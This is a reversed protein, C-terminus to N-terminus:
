FILDVGLMVSKLSPYKCGNSTSLEPDWLKFKSFTLLNNGSIYIRCAKVKNKTISKPINYGFEVQKLRLFSMDKKWWTSNANNNYNTAYSLRPWFVDQSPSEETWRDTYNTFINGLIGQGSGPIFYDSEDGIFRYTDGIGQFFISFDFGHFSINGGFGYVMRPDNTGGIYGKDKSNIVGDDNWDLFKIDGPRVEALENQPLDSLLNGDTDFDEATYLGLAKYGYMENISHGTIDQHTGQQGIPVDYELIENKAYSVNAFLSINTQNIKKNYTVAAEGGRNKVKGFNAYPTSLLGAQTPITRRQMFINNRYEDFIDLQIRLSNLMRLELGLNKKTVTEWTLNNVGIEGETVGERYYNGTTGWDYGTASSNMTTLYAFRRNSGIQDNGAQGWSARIKLFDITGKMGKWFNEESVLWGVAFSPFFGYRQGKAFNESGNYGFNFEGVYKNKYSYAARGAIGQNRYPQIGGNDYSRQNYLLLGTVNHVENFTHDYNTVWELYTQNNGYDSGESYNLFESGSSLLTLMLGGEDDRTTAPLYYTPSKSRTLSSYSYNDFSFSLKSSLGQTIFDLKQEISFLSEIKSSTYIGYGYQTLYAWPNVRGSRVPIKGDSYVAPHVMPPTQFAYNWTSSTSKAQKHLKQLYGGVSFRMSTTKTLNLDVNSRLNYRTLGTGTDYPLSEDRKMIGDESYVSGTLNYRLIASGGNVNLSARTNYANTKSISKVWNVDPYLEPDYGRRTRDITKQEYYPVKFEEAALDNLLQMHDAANIFSPMQTPATVAHEVRVNVVPKQIKGRKTNVLIVGNAGRVGYMASAAADKLISFSEIESIDLDDLTRQVGDVLVLPNTSGSFSSIGRIWFNSQNYGPEGSRTVAIVGALKGALTNSINKSSSIQLEGPNINQIAGVVSAKRQTGYGVVMVEELDTTEDRMVLELPVQNAPIQQTRMGVFSFVLIANAKSPTLTYRGDDNTITGEMTGQVVVSLGPIPQGSSDIVRGSVSNQQPQKIETLIKKNLDTARSELRKDKKLGIIIQRDSIIFSNKTGAFVQKMISELDQESCHLSVKRNLDLQDEQYFFLFESQQEITNFITKVTANEFNLTFKAVQSYSTSSFAMLTNMLILFISLRMIRMIKRLDYVLGGGPQKKKM